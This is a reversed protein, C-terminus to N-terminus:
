LDEDGGGNAQIVRKWDDKPVSRALERAEEFKRNLTRDKSLYRMDDHVRRQESERQEIISDVLVTELKDPNDAFYRNATLIKFTREDLERYSGDPEVVNMVHYKEKTLPHTHWIQWVGINPEWNLQLSPDFQSLRKCFSQPPVPYIDM